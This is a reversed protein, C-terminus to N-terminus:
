APEARVPLLDERLYRAYGEPARGVQRGSTLVDLAASAVVRRAPDRRIRAVLDVDEHAPAPSFGGAALYADARVGLNAGHVHGNAVGPVRTRRWAALQAPSLDRPDPRVTGIVVDAGRAALAVQTLLWAPPVASDADTCAIWSQAPPVPARSLVDLAGTRRTVGVAGADITLTRVDFGAATRATGDSCRDLVLLVDVTVGARRVALDRAQLVSTLCRAVLDEEDHAPVVVAVHRVRTGPPAAGDAASAGSVGVPPHVPRHAPAGPAAGVATM